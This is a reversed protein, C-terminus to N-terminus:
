DHFVRGKFDKLNFVEPGLKAMLFNKLFEDPRSGVWFPSDDFIKWYEHYLVDQTKSDKVRLFLDNRLLDFEDLPVGTGNSSGFAQQPDDDTELNAINVHFQYRLNRVLELSENSDKEDLRKTIEWGFYGYATTILNQTSQKNKDENEFGRDYLSKFSAKISPLSSNVIEQEWCEGSIVSEFAKRDDEKTILFRYTDEIEDHQTYAEVEFIRRRLQGEKLIDPSYEGSEWLDQILRFIIQFTILRQQGDIIIIDGSDNGDSKTIISGTFHKRGDPLQTLDRWLAEWNENKWVYRRQYRPVRYRKQGNFLEHIQEAM